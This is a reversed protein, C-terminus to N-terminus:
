SGFSVMLVLIAMYIIYTRYCSLSANLICVYMCSMKFVYMYIFAFIACVTEFSFYMYMYMPESSRAANSYSSLLGILRIQCFNWSDM